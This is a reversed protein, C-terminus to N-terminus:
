RAEPLDTLPRRLQWLARHKAYGRAVAAPGVPSHRGHSWVLMGNGAHRELEALLADAGARVALEAVDGDLQAYGTLEVPGRALLHKPGPRGLQLMAHDSLPPAADRAAVEAVLASVEDLSEPDLVESVTVGVM